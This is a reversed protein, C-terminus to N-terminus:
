PPIHYLTQGHSGILDLEEIPFKERELFAEVSVAFWEALEANLHCIQDVRSSEPELNLAISHKLETPMPITDFGLPQIKMGQEQPDHEFRALCLDLGDLSTGSMLGLVHFVLSM